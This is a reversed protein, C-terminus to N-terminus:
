GCCSFPKQNSNTDVMGLKRGCMPCYKILFTGCRCRNKTDIFLLMPETVLESDGYEWVTLTQSDKEYFDNIDENDFDNNLTAKQCYKCM